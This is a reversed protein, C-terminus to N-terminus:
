TRYSLLGTQTKGPQVVGFEESTASKLKMCVPYPLRVNKRMWTIETWFTPKCQQIPSWTVKDNPQRWQSMVTHRWKLFHGIDVDNHITIFAVKLVVCEFGFPVCSFTDFMLPPHPFFIGDRKIVTKCWEACGRSALCHGEPHLKRDVGWVWSKVHSRCHLMYLTSKAM